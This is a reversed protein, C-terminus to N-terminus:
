TCNRNFTAGTGGKDKGKVYIYRQCVLWLDSCFMDQCNGSKQMFLEM